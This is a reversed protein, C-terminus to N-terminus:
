MAQRRRRAAFGLGLLGISLITLSAPEPVRVIARVKANIAAGYDSFNNVVTVFGNGPVVFPPATVGLQPQVYQDRLFTITGASAEVAEASIMDWGATVATTAANVAAQQDSVGGGGGATPEGDTSVNMISFSGLPGDIAFSTRVLDTAAKLNTLGGTQSTAGGINGIATTVATLDGANTVTQVIQLTATSAFSVVGIRYTDQGNLLTGSVGNLAAILGNKMTALGGTTGSSISGSTDIIFALDINDAKADKAIGATLGLALALATTVLGKKLTKLTNM